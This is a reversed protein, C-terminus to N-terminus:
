PYLSLFLGNRCHYGYIAPSFLTVASQAIFAAPEELIGVAAQLMALEALSFAGTTLAWYMAVFGIHTFAHALYHAEGAWSHYQEMGQHRYSM